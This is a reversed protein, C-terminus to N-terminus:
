KSRPYPPGSKVRSSRGARRRGLLRRDSGAEDSKVISCINSISWREEGRSRALDPHLVATFILQDSLDVGLM